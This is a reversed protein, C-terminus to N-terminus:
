RIKAGQNVHQTVNSSVNGERLRLTRLRYVSLLSQRIPQLSWLAYLQSRLRAQSKRSQKSFSCQVGLEWRQKGKWLFLDRNFYRVRLILFVQCLVLLDQQGGQAKDGFSLLEQHLLVNSQLVDDADLHSRDAGAM